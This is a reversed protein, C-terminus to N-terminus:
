GDTGGFSVGRLKAFEIFANLVPDHEIPLFFQIADGYSIPVTFSNPCIAKIQEALKEDRTVFVAWVDEFMEMADATRCASFLAAASLEFTTEKPLYGFLKVASKVTKSNKFVPFIKGALGTAMLLKVGKARKNAAFLSELEM